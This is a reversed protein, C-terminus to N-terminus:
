KQKKRNSNTEINAFFAYKKKKFDKEKRVSSANNKSLYRVNKASSILTLKAIFVKMANKANEILIYANKANKLKEKKSVLLYYIEVFGVNKQKNIIKKTFLFIM